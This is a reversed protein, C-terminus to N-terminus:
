RRWLPASDSGSTTLGSQGAVTKQPMMFCRASRRDTGGHELTLASVSMLHSIYPIQTGKRLQERHIDHPYQLADGFRATLLAMESIGKM